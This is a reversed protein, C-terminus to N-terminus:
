FRSTSKRVGATQRSILLTQRLTEPCLSSERALPPPRLSWSGSAPTSPSVSAPSRSRPWCWPATRACLYWGGPPLRWWIHTSSRPCFDLLLECSMQRLQKHVNREMFVVKQKIKLCACWSLSLICPSRLEQCMDSPLYVHKTLHAESRM